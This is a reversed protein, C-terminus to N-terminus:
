DELYRKMAEVFYYDAYTLPVDIENKDPMNGVSHKLLFGNTGTEAKYEPTSLTKIITEAVNFYREGAEPQAYDKLELLASAIIAAASADRLADPIDPADFDWYPIKDDPLNPHNLIFEAIGTAHDLYKEDKTFRYMTTYGYLGWGQGRAWPTEDAYGQDTNKSEVAGTLTDYSVVHYSSYDERFHHKMTTNAHEIAVQTYTSDGFEEGTWLLMELNMMNDIIVPYQWKANWPAPDWSRICGIAPDFRTVLSNASQLIIERYDENGTIRYANGFSCFMMFGLDHTTKNYQEKELVNMIRVAEGLLLQDGTQEYLYLLTGPYFGSCWWDSGSTKLEGNEFTKPFRGEPLRQMMIKYQKVADSSTKRIAETFRANRKTDSGPGNCSFVVILVCLSSLLRNKKM